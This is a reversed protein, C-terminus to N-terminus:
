IRNELKKLIKLARSRFAAGAYPLQAEIQLKLERGLDPENMCVRGLVSMSFVKVAIPEDPGALLNFCTDTVPGLLDYPIDTYQLMRVTNRKVANHVPKLLNDIMDKLYPRILAPHKEVCVNVPWSARQSVRYSDGLFLKMLQGFKEPDDGIYAVIRNVQARSHERLIEARIDL